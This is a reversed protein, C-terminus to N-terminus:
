PPPLARLHQRHRVQWLRAHFYLRDRARHDSAIEAILRRLEPVLERRSQVRAMWYVLAKAAGDSTARQALAQRWLGMVDDRAVTGAQIGGLVIPIGGSECRYAIRILCTAAPSCLKASLRVWYCLEAVVDAVAEDAALVSVAAAISEVPAGYGAMGRLGRLAEGVSIGGIRQGYALAAVSGGTGPSRAWTRIQERVREAVAPDRSARDLAWAVARHMGVNRGHRDNLWAEFVNTRVMEFDLTALLGAAQATRARRLLDGPESQRTMAPGAFWHLLPWHAAPYERWTAVLIAPALDPHRISIAGGERAPGVGDERSDYRIDSYEPWWGSLEKEFVARSPKKKPREVRQFRNDLGFAAHAVDRPPQGALVACSVLFSRRALNDARRLEREAIETVHRGLIQNVPREGLGAAVAEALDVADRPRQHGDLDDRILLRDSEPLTSARYELHRDFVEALKPPENAVLFGTLRQHDRIVGREAVVVLSAGRRLVAEQLQGILGSHIAERSGDALLVYGYGQKLSKTDLTSLAADQCLWVHGTEGTWTDVARLATTLRGRGKPGALVQIGSIPLQRVLEKYATTEVFTARLGKLYDGTLPGPPLRDPPPQNNIYVKEIYDRGAARGHDQAFAERISDEEEARQEPTGQFDDAFGGIRRGHPDQDRPPESPEAGDQAPPKSLEREGPQSM